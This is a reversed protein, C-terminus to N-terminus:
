RRGRKRTSAGYRNNAETCPRCRCGHNTYTSLRGHCRPPLPAVLRGNVLVRAALRIARQERARAANAETCSECRCGKRGGYGNYTSPKGHERVGIIGSSM